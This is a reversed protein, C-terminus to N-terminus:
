NAINPMISYVQIPITSAYSSSVGFLNIIHNFGFSWSYPYNLTVRTSDVCSVTSSCTQGSPAVDVSREITLGYTTGSEYYTFAEPTLTGNTSAVTGPSSCGTTVSSSSTGSIGMFAPNINEEILYEAVQECIQQINPPNTDTLDLKSQGSALRAGDRAANALIQRANWAQAFDAAGAILVLLLPLVFALEVLQSGRESLDKPVGAFARM